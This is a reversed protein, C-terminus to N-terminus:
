RHVGRLGPFPVLKPAGETNFFSASITISATGVITRNTLEPVSAQMATRRQHPGEGSAVFDDLKFAAVV